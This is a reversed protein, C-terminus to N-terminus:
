FEIEGKYYKSLYIPANGAEILEIDLKAFKKGLPGSPFLNVYDLPITEVLM